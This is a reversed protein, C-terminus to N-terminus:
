PKVAWCFPDPARPAWSLRVSLGLLVASAVHDMFMQENVVTGASFGKAYVAPGEEFVTGLGGGVVVAAAAGRYRTCRHAHTRTGPWVATSMDEVDARQLALEGPYLHLAGQDGPASLTVGFSGPWPHCTGKRSAWVGELPETGPGVQAGVEKRQGTGRDWPRLSHYGVM